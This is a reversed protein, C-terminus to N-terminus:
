FSQLLTYQRRAVWRDLVNNTEHLCVPGHNFGHHDLMPPGMGAAIRLALRKPIRFAM